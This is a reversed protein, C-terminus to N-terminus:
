QTVGEDILIMTMKRYGDHKSHNTSYNGGDERDQGCYRLVTKGNSWVTATTINADQPTLDLAIKALSLRPNM